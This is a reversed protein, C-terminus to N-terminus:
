WRISESLFLESIALAVPMIKKIIRMVEDLSMCKQWNCCCWHKCQPEVLAQILAQIMTRDFCVKTKRQEGNREGSSCLRRNAM